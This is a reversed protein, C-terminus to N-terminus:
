EFDSRSNAANGYAACVEAVTHGGFVVRQDLRMECLVEHLRSAADTIRWQLPEEIGLKDCFAPSVQAITMPVPTADIKVEM